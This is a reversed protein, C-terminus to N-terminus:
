KLFTTYLLGDTEDKYVINNKQLTKEFESKEETKLEIGAVVSGWASSHNRYHFLSINFGKIATLFNLLSHPSEPFQFYYFKEDIVKQGSHGGVMYRIHTKAIENNSLDHALYNNKTLLDVIKKAEINSSKIGVYVSASGKKHFRYNFETINYNDLLSAFAFFSGAKEPIEVSLIVEKNESIASRETIYSLRDFNINAGSLLTMIKKNKIKNERIYKKAGAISVAGAPESIARVDVYIDQIAACIEDTNVRVCGDILKRTKNTIIDFTLSGIKSVAIGDAFINIGELSTPKSHKIAHYLCSSSEEEVAIIKIEPRIYKLYSAVGAFLGGGGV